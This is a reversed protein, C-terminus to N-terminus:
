LPEPVQAAWYVRSYAYCDIDYKVRKVVERLEELSGDNYIVIDDQIHLLETESVHAAMTGHMPTISPRVVRIIYAETGLSKAWSRIAAEENVFRVDTLVVDGGTSLDAMVQNKVVELWFSDNLGRICTGLEQLLRRVEGGADPNEKLREWSGELSHLYDQIHNGHKDVIPNVDRLLSKLAAAFSHKVFGYDQVLVQGVSDKGNRAKGTIGIIM